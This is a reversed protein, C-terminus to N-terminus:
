SLQNLPASESFRQLEIRFRTEQKKWYREFMTREEPFRELFFTDDSLKLTWGETTKMAVQELILLLRDSTLRRPSDGPQYPGYIRDLQPRSVRGFRELLLLILTRARAVHPPVSSSSASALFKSNLVFSGRVLVAVVSLARLLQRDISVDGGDPAFSSRLIEFPIPGGGMMRSAVRRVLSRLDDTTSSLSRPIGIRSKTGEGVQYYLSQIYASPTTSEALVRQSRNRHCYANKMLQHYEASLPLHVDLDSWAESDESAKQYAYSSKRALVARDSEKRQYLVPKKEYPRNDHHQHHDMESGGLFNAELQDEADVHQFSPRMQKIGAIPILHLEASSAATTTAAASVNQGDGRGGAAVAAGSGGGPVSSVVLRGLCLHTQVPITQSTFVRKEDIFAYSGEREMNGPLPIELELQGHLPKIRGESPHSLTGIFSSAPSSYSDRMSQTLPYQLLYLKDALHPSLFVDIEQEIEDM